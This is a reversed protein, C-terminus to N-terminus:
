TKKVCTAIQVGFVAVVECHICCSCSCCWSWQNGASSSHVSAVVLAMLLVPQYCVVLVPVGIWLLSLLLLLLFSLLGFPLLVLVSHCLGDGGAAVAAAAVVAPAVVVVDVLTLLHCCCCFTNSTTTTTTTTATSKRIYMAIFHHYM